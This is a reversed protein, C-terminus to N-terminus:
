MSPHFISTGKSMAHNLKLYANVNCYKRKQHHMQVAVNSRELLWLKKWRAGIIRGTGVEAARGVDIEWGPDMTGRSCKVERNDRRQSLIDHDLSGLASARSRGSIFGILPAVEVRINLAGLLPDSEDRHHRLGRSAPPGFTKFHQPLKGFRSCRVRAAIVISGHPLQKLAEADGDTRSLDPGNQTTRAVRVVM